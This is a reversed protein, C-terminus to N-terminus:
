YNNALIKTRSTEPNNPLNDAFNDNDPEYSIFIFRTSISYNYVFIVLRDRRNKHNYTRSNESM